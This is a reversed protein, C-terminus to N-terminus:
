SLRGIHVLLLIEYLVSSVIDVLAMGVEECDFHMGELVLVTLSDYHTWKRIREPPIGINSNAVRLM